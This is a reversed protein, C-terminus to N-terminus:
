LLALADDDVHTRAARRNAEKAYYEACLAKCLAAITKVADPTPPLSMVIVTTRM